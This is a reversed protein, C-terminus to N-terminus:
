AYTEFHGAISYTKFDRGAGGGGGGEGGRVPMVLGALMEANRCGSSCPTDVRWGEVRSVLLFERLEVATSVTM